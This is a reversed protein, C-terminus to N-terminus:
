CGGQDKELVAIIGVSSCYYGVGYGLGVLILSVYFVMYCIGFDSVTVIASSIGTTAWLFVIASLLIGFIELDVPGFDKTAGSRGGYICMDDSYLSICLSCGKESFM